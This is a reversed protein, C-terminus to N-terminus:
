RDFDSDTTDYGAQLIRNVVTMNAAVNDMFSASQDFESTTELSM